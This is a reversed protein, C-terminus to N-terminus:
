PLPHIDIEDSVARPIHLCQQGPAQECRSPCPELDITVETIQFCARLGAFATLSHWDCRIISANRRAM